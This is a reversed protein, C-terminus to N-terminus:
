LLELGREFVHFWMLSDLAFLWMAILSYKVLCPELIIDLALHCSVLEFFALTHTGSSHNPIDKAVVEQLLLARVM